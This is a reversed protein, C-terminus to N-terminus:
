KSPKKDYRGTDGRGKKPVVEVSTTSPRQRAEDLKVFQGSGNDRGLKFGKSEKAM